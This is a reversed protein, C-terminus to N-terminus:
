KKYNFEDIVRFVGSENLTLWDESIGTYCFKNTGEIKTALLACKKAFGKKFLNEPSM